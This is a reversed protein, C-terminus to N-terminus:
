VDRAGHLGPEARSDEVPAGTAVIVGQCERAELAAIVRGLTTLWAGVGEREGLRELPGAANWEGEIGAKIQRLVEVDRSM